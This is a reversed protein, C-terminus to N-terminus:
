ILIVPPGTAQYSAAPATDRQAQGARHPPATAQGAVAPPTLLSPAEDALAAHDFAACAEGGPAHGWPAAPLAQALGHGAPHAHDCDAHATDHSPHGQSHRHEFAHAQALADGLSPGAHAVRHMLGGMQAWLLALVMCTSLLRHARRRLHM